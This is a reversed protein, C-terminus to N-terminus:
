FQVKPAEQAQPTAEFYPFARFGALNAVLAGPFRRIATNYERALDNYRKREVSIRNETGALEDM